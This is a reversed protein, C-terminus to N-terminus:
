NIKKIEEYIDRPLFIIDLFIKYLLIIFIASGQIIFGYFFWSIDVFINEGIKKNEFFQTIESDSFPLDDTNIISEIKEGEPNKILNEIKISIKDFSERSIEGSKLAESIQSKLNELSQWIEIKRKLEFIDFRNEISFKQRQREFNEKMSELKQKESEQKERLKNRAENYVGPNEFM